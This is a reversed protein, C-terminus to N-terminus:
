QITAWDVSVSEPVPLVSGMQHPLPPVAVIADPTESVEGTPRKPLEPAGEVQVLEEPTKLSRWNFAVAMGSGETTIIIIM